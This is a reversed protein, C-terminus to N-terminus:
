SRNLYKVLTIQNSEHRREYRVEDMLARIISLGRGRELEGASECTKRHPWRRTLTL